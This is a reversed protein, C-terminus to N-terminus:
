LSLSFAIISTIFDFLEGAIASTVFDGGTVVFTADRFTHDNDDSNSSSSRNSVSKKKKDEEVTVQSRYGADAVLCNEVSKKFKKYAGNDIEWTIGDDLVYKFELKIAEGTMLKIIAWGRWNFLISHINSSPIYFDESNKTKLSVFFM